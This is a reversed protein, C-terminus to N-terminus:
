RVYLTSESDEFIFLEGFGQSRIVPIILIIEHNGTFKSGVLPGLFFVCVSVCVCM